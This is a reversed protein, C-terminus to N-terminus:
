ALPDYSGRVRKKPLLRFSCSSLCKSISDYRQLLFSLPSSSMQLEDRFMDRGGEKKKRWDLCVM